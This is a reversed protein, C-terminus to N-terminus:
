GKLKMVRQMGPIKKEAHYRIGAQTGSNHCWWLKLGGKQVKFEQMAQGVFRAYIDVYKWDEKELEAIM